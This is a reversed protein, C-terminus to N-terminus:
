TGTEEKYGRPNHLSILCQLDNKKKTKPQISRFRNQSQWELRFRNQSQWELGTWSQKSCAASPSTQVDPMRSIWQDLFKIKGTHLCGHGHLNNYNEGNLCGCNLTKGIWITMAHLAWGPSSTPEHWQSERFLCWLTTSSIGSKVASWVSRTTQTQNQYKSDGQSGPKSYRAPWNEIFM